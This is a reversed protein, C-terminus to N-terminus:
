RIKEWHTKLFEEIGSSPIYKKYRKGFSRRAAEFSGPEVAALKKAMFVLALSPGRSVGQNCHILLGRGASYHESAFRMFVDFSELRFMTTPPDILNLFLQDDRVLSLYNPHTEDLSGSYRVARQHCPSKCAHIVAMERHVHGKEFSRPPPSFCQFSRCDSQDGVFIRDHVRVPM